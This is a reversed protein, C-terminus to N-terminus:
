ALVDDAREGVGGRVPITLGFLRFLGPRTSWNDCTLLAVDVAAGCPLGLLDWRCNLALGRVCLWAALGDGGEEPKVLPVVRFPNFVFGLSSSVCVPSHQEQTVLLYCTQQSFARQFGLDM